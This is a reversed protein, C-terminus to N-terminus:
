SVTPTDQSTSRSQPRCPRSISAPAPTPTPPAPPGRGRHARRGQLPHDRPDVWHPPLPRIRPQQGAHLLLRGDDQRLGEGASDGVGGAQQVLPGGAAQRGAPGARPRRHGGPAASRQLLPPLRVHGQPQHGAPHPQRRQPVGPPLPPGDAGSHVVQERVRGAGVLVVPLQLRGRLGSPHVPEVAPGACDRARQHREACPAM